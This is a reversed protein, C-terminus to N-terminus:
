RVTVDERRGWGRYMMYFLICVGVTLPLIGSIGSAFASFSQQVQREQQVDHNSYDQPPRAVRTDSQAKPEPNFKETYNPAPAASQAAVPAPLAWLMGSVAMSILAKKM